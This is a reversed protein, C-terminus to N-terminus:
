GGGAPLPHRAAGPPHGISARHQVYLRLRMAAGRGFPSPTLFVASGIIGSARLVSIWSHRRKRGAISATANEPNSSNICAAKTNPMKPEVATYMVADSASKHT